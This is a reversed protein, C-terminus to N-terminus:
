IGMEQFLIKLNNCMETKNKKWIIIADNSKLKSLKEKFNVQLDWKYKGIDVM